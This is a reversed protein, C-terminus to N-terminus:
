GRWRRRVRGLNPTMFSFAIIAEQSSAQRIIEELSDAILIRFDRTLGDEEICGLLVPLTYRNERTKRLAM